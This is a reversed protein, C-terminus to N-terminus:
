VVTRRPLVPSMVAPGWIDVPAKHQRVAQQVRVLHLHQLAAQVRFTSVGCGAWGMSQRVQLKGLAWARSTSM